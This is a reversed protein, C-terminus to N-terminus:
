GRKFLDIKWQTQWCAPNYSCKCRRLFRYASVVFFVDLAQTGNRNREAKTGSLDVANTWCTANLAPSRRKYKHKPTASSFVFSFNNLGNLNTTIGIIFTAKTARQTGSGNNCSVARKNIRKVSAQRFHKRGKKAKKSLFRKQRQRKQPFDEKSIHSIWILDAETKGKTKRQSEASPSTCVVNSSLQQQRCHQGFLLPFRCARKFGNSFTHWAMSIHHVHYRM